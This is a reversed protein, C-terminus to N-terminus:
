LGLSWRNRVYNKEKFFLYCIFIFAIFFSIDFIILSLMCYRLNGLRERSGATYQVGKAVDEKGLIYNILVLPSKTRIFFDLLRPGEIVVVIENNDYVSHKGSSLYDPDNNTEAALRKPTVDEFHEVIYLLSLYKAEKDQFILNGSTDVLVWGYEPFYIESVTHGDMWVVRAQYGLAQAISVLFKSYGSCIAPYEEDSELIEDVNNITNSQHFLHSRVYGALISSILFVDEENELFPELENPARKKFEPSLPLELNLKSFNFDDVTEKYSLAIFPFATKKIHVLTIINISCVFLIILILYITKKRM